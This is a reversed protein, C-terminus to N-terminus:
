RCRCCPLAFQGLQYSGLRLQAAGAATAAPARRRGQGPGERVQVSGDGSKMVNRSTALTSINLLLYDGPKEAVFGWKKRGEDTWTFGSTNVLRDKFSTGL